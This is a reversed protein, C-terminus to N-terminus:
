VTYQVYISGLTTTNATPATAGTGYYVNVAAGSVVANSHDGAVIMAGGSIQGSSTIASTTISKTAVDKRLAYDDLIGKSKHGETFATNSKKPAFYNQILKKGM